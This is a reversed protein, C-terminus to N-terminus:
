RVNSLIPETLRDRIFFCRYCVVQWVVYVIQGCWVSVANGQSASLVVLVLANGQLPLTHIKIDFKMLGDCPRTPFYSRLCYANKARCPNSVTKLQALILKSRM